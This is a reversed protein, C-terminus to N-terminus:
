PASRRRAAGGAAGEGGARRGHLLLLLPATRLVRWVLQQGGALSAVLLVGSAARELVGPRLLRLRRLPASSLLRRLPGGGQGQGERGRGAGEAGEAAAAPPELAEALQQVQRQLAAMGEASSAAALQVYKVVV